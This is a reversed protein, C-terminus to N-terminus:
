QRRLLFHPRRAEVWCHRVCFLTTQIHLTGRGARGTLWCTQRSLCMHRCAATAHWIHWFGCEHLSEPLPLSLDQSQAAPSCRLQKSCFLSRIKDHVMQPQVQKSSKQERYTAWGRGQCPGDTPRVVCCSRATGAIRGCSFAMRADHLPGYSHDSVSGWRFLIRELQKWRCASRSSRLEARLEAESRHM